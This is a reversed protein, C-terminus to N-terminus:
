ALRERRRYAKQMVGSQGRRTGICEVQDGCEHRRPILTSRDVRLMDAAEQDTLGSFAHRELLALDRAMLTPADDSIAVAGARSTDSGSQYPLAAQAPHLYPM